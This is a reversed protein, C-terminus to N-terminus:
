HNLAICPFWMSEGAPVHRRHSAAESSARQGFSEPCTQFNVQEVIKRNKSESSKLNEYTECNQLTEFLKTDYVQKNMTVTMNGKDAKM